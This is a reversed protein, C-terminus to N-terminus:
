ILWVCLLGWAIGYITCCFGSVDMFWPIGLSLSGFGAITIGVFVLIASGDVFWWILSVWLLGSAISYITCCFGSVDVVVFVLLLGFGINTIGSFM